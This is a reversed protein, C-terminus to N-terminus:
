VDVNFQMFQKICIEYFENVSLFYVYLYLIKKVIIEMEVFDGGIEIKLFRCFKILFFCCIRDFM